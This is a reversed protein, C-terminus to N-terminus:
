LYLVAPRWFKTITPDFSVTFNGFVPDIPANPGFGSGTFSFTRTILDASAVGPGACVTFLILAILMPAFRGSKPQNM